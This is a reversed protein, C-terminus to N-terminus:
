RNSKFIVLKVFKSKYAEYFNRRLITCYKACNESGNVDKICSDMNQIGIKVKKVVFCQTVVFFMESQM